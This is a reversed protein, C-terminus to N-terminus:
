CPEYPNKPSYHPNLIVHWSILILATCVLLQGLQDVRGLNCPAQSDVFALLLGLMTSLLGQGEEPHLNPSTEDRTSLAHDAPLQAYTWQEVQQLVSEERVCELRRVQIGTSQSHLVRDEFPTLRVGAHTREFVYPVDGEPKLIVGIHEFENNNVEKALLAAFAKLLKHTVLNSEFLVVDGTQLSDNMATHTSYPEFERREAYNYKTEDYLHLYSVSGVTALAASELLRRSASRM